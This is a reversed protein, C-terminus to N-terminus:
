KTTKEATLERTTKPWAKPKLLEEAVSESLDEALSEDGLRSELVKQAVSQLAKKHERAYDDFTKNSDKTNKITTNAGAQLLMTVIPTNGHEAALMLATRGGKKDQINLQAKSAILMSATAPQNYLIAFMLPTYGKFKGKNNKTNIDPIVPGALLHQVEQTDGRVIAQFLRQNLEPKINKVIRSEPSIDALTGHMAGLPLSRIFRAMDNEFVRQQQPSMANWQQTFESATQQRLQLLEDESLQKMKEEDETLEQAFQPESQALKELMTDVGESQFRARAESTLKTPANVQAAYLPLSAPLLLITIILFIPSKM